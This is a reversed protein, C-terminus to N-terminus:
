HRRLKARAEPADWRVSGTTQQGSAQAEWRARCRFRTANTSFIGFSRFNKMEGTDMTGLLDPALEHEKEDGDVEAIIGYIRVFDLRRTARVTGAVTAQVSSSGPFLSKVDCTGEGEIVLRDGATAGGGRGTSQALTVRFAGTRDTRLSTAEITYTGPSLDATIRADTGPGGDDDLALQRGSINEGERLVLWADFTSSAMDIQVEASELLRFSYYRALEGRYNPSVCDRGLVGSRTKSATGRLTGLAEITCGGGGTVTEDGTGTRLVVGATVLGDEIRCESADCTFRIDGYQVYGGRRMTIMVRGGSLSFSAGSTRNPIGTPFNPIREGARFSNATAGSDESVTVDFQQTASRGGRDTATVTVTATGAAVPTLTIQSGSVNARVINSQSSTARYTLPDGDPDEFNAAVDVTRASGGETLTQSPITRVAQPARNVSETGVRAIIWSGDSQRSASLVLNNSTINIGGGSTISGFTATGDANVTLTQSTGPYTCSDGARLVLGVTCTPPPPPPTPPPAPTAPPPSSPASGGDGGCAGM